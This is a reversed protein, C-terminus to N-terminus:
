DNTAQHDSQTILSVFPNNIKITCESHHEKWSVAEGEELEAAPNEQQYQLLKLPLSLSVTTTTIFPIM